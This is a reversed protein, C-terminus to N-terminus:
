WNGTGVSTQWSSTLLKDQEWGLLNEGRYKGCNLTVALMPEGKMVSEVKLAPHIPLFFLFSFLYFNYLLYLSFVKKVFSLTM